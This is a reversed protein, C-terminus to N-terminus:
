RGFIMAVLATTGSPLSAQPSCAKAFQLDTQLFSRVIVKELKLPFDSDEAVIRPLNDRVFLAADKGGHGDFM